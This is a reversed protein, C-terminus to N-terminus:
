MGFVRWARSGGAQLANDTTFQVGCKLMIDSIPMTPLCHVYRYYGTIVYDSVILGGVIKVGGGSGKDVYTMYPAYVYGYYANNMVNDGGFQIDASEKSSIVYINVNPMQEEGHYNLNISKSNAYSTVKDTDLHGECICSDPEENLYYHKTYHDPHKTCVYYMGYGDGDDGTTYECDSCTTHILKNPSIIATDPDNLVLGNRDFYEAGGKTALKGGCLFYWGMHGFFEQDTAQYRVGEPVDIVLTGKGKTLINMKRGELVTEPCWSFSEGDACNASVRLIRVDGEDGTDIVITAADVNNGISTIKGIVVNENIEQVYNGNSLDFNIDVKKPNGKSDQVFEDDKIQWNYFTNSGIEKNLKDKIEESTLFYDDDQIDAWRGYKKAEDLSDQTEGKGNIHVTVGDRAYVNGDIYFKGLGSQGMENWTSNIFTVDGAVYLNGYLKLSGIYCNGLVYVDTYKDPAGIQFYGAQAMEFDGGIVIKGHEENEAKDMQGNKGGLDFKDPQSRIYFNNGIYWELTDTAAVPNATKHDFVVSGACTMDTDITLAQSDFGKPKTFMTYEADFRMSETFTGGGPTVDNPTYGTAAFFDKILPPLGVVSKPYTVLTHTTEVAGNESATVEFDFVFYDNDNIKEDNLRTIVVDYAGLTTDPKTGAGFSAFGNGDTYYKDGVAMKSEDTLLKALASNKDKALYARLGDAITSSSVYAQEQDFIAYQVQRSSLVSMYMATVLVILAAMTSVVMFLASGCPTIYKRLAHKM